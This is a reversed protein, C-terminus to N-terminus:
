PGGLVVFGSLQQGKWLLQRSLGHAIATISDNSLFVTELSISKFTGECAINKRFDKNFAFGEKSLLNATQPFESIM